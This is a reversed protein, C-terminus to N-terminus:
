ILYFYEIIKCAEEDNKVWTDVTSRVFPHNCIVDKRWDGDFIGIVSKEPSAYYWALEFLTGITPKNPDYSNLNAIAMTSKEVYTKDKPVLLDTGFKRYVKLRQPDDTKQAGKLISQNFSNNCPDIIDMLPNSEFYLRIRERWKYTEEVDASIQGILYAREYYSM